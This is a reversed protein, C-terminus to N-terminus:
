MFSSLCACAAHSCRSDPRGGDEGVTGVWGIFIIKVLV